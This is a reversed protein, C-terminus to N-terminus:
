DGTLARAHAVAYETGYPKNLFASGPPLQGAPPQGSTILLAIHPWVKAVYRALALGTMQGPM